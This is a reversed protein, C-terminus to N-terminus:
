EAGAGSSSIKFGLTRALTLVDSGITINKRVEVARIDTTLTGSPVHIGRDTLLIGRRDAGARYQFSRWPECQREVCHVTRIDFMQAATLICNRTHDIGLVEQPLAPLPIMPHNTSGDCRGRAKKHWVDVSCIGYPSHIRLKPEMELWQAKCDRSIVFVETRRYEILHTATYYDERTLRAIPEGKPPIEVILGQQACMQQSIKLADYGFQSGGGELRVYHAEVPKGGFSELRLPPEKALALSSGLFSLASVIWRKTTNM